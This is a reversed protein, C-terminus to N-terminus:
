TSLVGYAESQFSSEKGFAPGAHQILTKEDKNCVKWAFSMTDDGASGDTAIFMHGDDLMDRLGNCLELIDINSEFTSM